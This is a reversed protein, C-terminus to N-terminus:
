RSHKLFWEYLDPNDYTQTWSNHEVGPYVTLKVERVGATRLFGVMRESESVPVVPDKDGHFAWVALSKLANPKERGALLVSIYEGGGCIPAMAAFKEPFKLGLDWAGYGGMSLGTLYVRQQDVAYKRVIENLLEVLRDREWDEREPCLPSVVIFPCEWGQAIRKPPGHTAAKWVDAGREGAGHLFMIMPWTKNSGPAYDRPLWLLYDLRRGSDTLHQVTQTGSAAPSKVTTSCGALAAVALALLLARGPGKKM